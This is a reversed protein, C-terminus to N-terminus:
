LRGSEAVSSEALRSVLSKVLLDANIRKPSLALQEALELDAIGHVTALTLFGQVPASAAGVVGEVMRLLLDHTRRMVETLSATEQSRRDFMLRYLHPKTRAFRIYALLMMCLTKATDQRAGAAVTMAEILQEWGLVAAEALLEDKNAFYLYPANHSVGVHAGVGRLTVADPGGQALMTIAAKLLADRTAQGPLPRTTTVGHAYNVGSSDAEHLV